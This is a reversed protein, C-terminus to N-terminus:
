IAEPNTLKLEMSCVLSLSNLSGFCVTLICLSYAKM